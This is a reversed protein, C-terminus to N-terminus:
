SDIFDFMYDHLMMYGDFFPVPLFQNFSGTVM